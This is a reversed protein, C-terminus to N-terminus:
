FDRDDVATLRAKLKCEVAYSICCCHLITQRNYIKVRGAVLIHGELIKLSLENKSDGEMTQVEIIIQFPLILLGEYFLKM